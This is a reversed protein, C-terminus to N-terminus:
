HDFFDVFKDFIEEMKNMLISNGPASYDSIIEGPAAGWFVLYFTGYEGNYSVKVVCDDVSLATDKFETLNGIAVVDQGDYISEVAVGAETILNYLMQVPLRYAKCITMTPTSPVQLNYPRQQAFRRLKVINYCYYLRVLPGPRYYM